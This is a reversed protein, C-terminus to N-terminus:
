AKKSKKNKYMLSDVYDVFHDGNMKMNSDYISYGYSFGLAIGMKKETNYEEINREIREIVNKIENEDGVDLVIVFEDGGYRAILDKTRTSKKLIEAFNILVSDGMKHGHLDNILKFDDIDIMIVSFPTDKSFNKIKGALYEDLNRRSSTETLYDQNIEKSQINLYVVFVSLAVCNWLISVGYLFAQLVGGVVPFIAFSMLYIFKRKSVNKSHMVLGLIGYLLYSFTIIVIMMFLPGRQYYNATNVSFYWGTALSIFSLLINLFLPIALFLVVKKSLGRNPVTQLISYVIWLFVPLPNLALFLANIITNAIMYGVGHVGDVLWAVDEMILMILVSLVIHRFVKRQKSSEKHKDLLSLYMFFMFVASFINGDIKNIFEVM